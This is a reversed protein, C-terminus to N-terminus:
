TADFLIVAWTCPAPRPVRWAHATGRQIVVDGPGLLRSETELRLELHGSIVIGFDLTPTTHFPYEFGAQWTMIRGVAGGPPAENAIKWGQLPDRSDRVPAPLGRLVWFDLGESTSDKWQANDPVPAESEVRSKGQADIGTIVRRGIHLPKLQQLAGLDSAINSTRRHRLGVFGSLLSAIFGRRPSLPDSFNM